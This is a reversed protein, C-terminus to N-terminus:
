FNMPVDYTTALWQMVRARTQEDHATDYILAAVPESGSNSAGLSVSNLDWGTGIAMAATNHISAADFNFTRVTGNATVQVWGIHKGLTRSGGKVATANSSGGIGPTDIRYRLADTGAGNDGMQINGGTTPNLVLFSNWGTSAGIVNVVGYLTIDSSGKIPRVMTASTGPGATQALLEGAGAVATADSCRGEQVSGSQTSNLYYGTGRVITSICFQSNADFRRYQWTADTSLGSVQSLSTPLTESNTIRWTAIAKNAQSLTSAAASQRARNQIGNFGVITITALIAIVIVVILLEVITFGKQPKAIGMAKWYVATALLM